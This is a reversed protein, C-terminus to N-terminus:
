NSTRKINWWYNQKTNSSTDKNKSHLMRFEKDLSCSEIENNQVRNINFLPPTASAYVIRTKSSYLM